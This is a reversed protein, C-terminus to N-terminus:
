GHGAEMRERQADDSVEGPQELQERVHPGGLAKAAEEITRMAHALQWRAQDRESHLRIAEQELQEKEHEVTSLALEFGELDARHQARLQELADSTM